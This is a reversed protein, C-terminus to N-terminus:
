TFEQIALNSSAAGAIANIAGTAFNTETMEWVGGPFLTIGSNLVATAGIGLSITNVSTNTLVLGKRSSNSAVAQASGTGVTAATPSSATLATKTSVLWPTTNATNGPQVTWTGSQGVNGDITISNGGDQINVASGGSANNITVDGIDVGPQATAIVNQEGAATILATDTGDTLKTFQSKDTQAAATAAGTPLSVTGSVNTINWTGSQTVAGIVASGAPLPADLFVAGAGSSIQISVVATGTVAGLASIRFKLSGAVNAQWMGTAASAITASYVNTGVNVLGTSGLNVWNSNDVTVQPTLAGTYTGTVQISVTAGGNLSASAVTSSATATGSNPNLNQTTISGTATTDAPVATISGDVTISNGGDQINVASGGSANNITVDGIDVGPQATAIVNLEGSGTILATDTGDTLKTFQTKNTLTADLALASTNLNTGANATVSGDVTISNGGDQINVSGSGTGNNITVDGIDIGPQATAIVNLDGAATVNATDTGDTIKTFQSKDTLTANLAPSIEGGSNTRLNVHVARKTTVRVVSAKNEVADTTGTDDLQGMIPVGKSIDAGEAHVTDDILQLSTIETSQNASTAAGTPLPLSAASIPQTVGSGDVVWPTTSQTVGVTGSIGVSGDVTISNGGDQINVAAAGSGNNVTVDGIDVGPQATALVNLEGSGTILATDTGDTLKTFQSKNTLTADLAAGTPLPLSAASIVWPTTGQIVGAAISALYSNGTDQKAETALGTTDVSINGVVAVSTQGGNDVFKAKELDNINPSLAM